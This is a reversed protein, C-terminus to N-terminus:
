IRQNRDAAGLQFTRLRAPNPTITPPVVAAVGWATQLKQLLFDQQDHFFQLDGAGLNIITFWVLGRNRTPIVGALSSVANLTGTKLVAGQPINRGNLTGGDRGIVPFVDAISMQRPQLYKQISVLMSTVARPSIRNEEGLGSGNILQIEEPPVNAITAAQEALAAAGGLIDSLMEAIINNSYINMGRLINILPLSQHKVIPTSRERDAATALRVTGALALRPRPTAPPLQQYQAEVEDTWLNSDFGQKLFTGATIPDTEFNMAFNGSIVLDGAIQQIGAQNLANGLAIAEEWVFFPDSESHVILNGQLVGAEIAGTTSVITEFQHDPGWTALAVLTTPIKTLSAAPLPVTGMNEAVVQDGIRLWVGQRESSLGQSALAELHQQVAITAMPDPDAVEMILSDITAESIVGSWNVSQAGVNPPGGLFLSLLSSLLDM